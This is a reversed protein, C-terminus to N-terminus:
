IHFPCYHFTSVQTALCNEEMACQLFYMQRDELHATREIEGADIVLDAMEAVTLYITHALHKVISENPPQLVPFCDIPM